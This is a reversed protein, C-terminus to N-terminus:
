VVCCKDCRRRRCSWVVVDDPDRHAGGHVCVRVVRGDRWEQPWSRLLHDSRNHITCARGACLASHHVGDVEQGSHELVHVRPEDVASISTDVFNGRDGGRRLYENGGDVFIAGCSCSVFDHVHRSVVEDGCRLCRASNKVIVETVSAAM